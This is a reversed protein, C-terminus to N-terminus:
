LLRQLIEGRSVGKQDAVLRLIANLTGIRLTKHAPIPLRQHRPQETQLIIHSGTQGVERYAWHRCLRDALERGGLDRPIRM